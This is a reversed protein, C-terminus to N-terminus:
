KGVEKYGPTAQEINPAVDADVRGAMWAMGGLTLGQFKANEWVDERHGLSTYFVRGNGEKRAWTQPFSPRHYMGGEMGSTEQALIVHMDPNFNKLAYWEEMLRISDGIEKAGPFDPAINKLTAEQQAGHVIFEGGLMQIFPDVQDGRSHFSDSACHFGILGKGGRVADILAQKGEPTM